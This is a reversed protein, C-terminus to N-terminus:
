MDCINAFISYTNCERIDFASFWARNQLRSSRRLLLKGSNTNDVEAAVHQTSSSQMNDAIKFNTSSIDKTINRKKPYSDNEYCNTSVTTVQSGLMIKGRKKVARIAAVQLCSNEDTEGNRNRLACHREAAAKVPAYTMRYIECPGHEYLASRHSATPYGKAIIFPMHHLPPSPFLM